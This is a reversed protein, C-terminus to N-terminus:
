KVELARIRRRSKAQEDDLRREYEEEAERAVELQDHCDSLERVKDELLQTAENFEGRLDENQVTLTENSELQSQNSLVLEEVVMDREKVATELEDARERLDQLEQLIRIQDRQETRRTKDAGGARKQAEAAKTKETQLLKRTNELDEELKRRLRDQLM